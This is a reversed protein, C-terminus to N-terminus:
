PSLQQCVGDCVPTTQDCMGPLARGTGAWGSLESEGQLPRLPHRQRRGLRRRLLGDLSTGAGDPVDAGLAAAM